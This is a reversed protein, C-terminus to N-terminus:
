SHLFQARVVNMPTPHRFFRLTIANQVSYYTWAWFSCEFKKHLKVYGLIVCPPECFDKAFVKDCNILVPINVESLYADDIGYFLLYFVYFRCPM